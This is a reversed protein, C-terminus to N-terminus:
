FRFGLKYLYKIASEMDGFQKKTGDEFKVKGNEEVIVEEDYVNFLIESM